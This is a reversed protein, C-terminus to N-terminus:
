VKKSPLKAFLKRKALPIAFLFPAIIIAWALNIRIRNRVAIDGALAAAQDYEEGDVVPNVLSGGSAKTTKYTRSGWVSRTTTDSDSTQVVKKVKRVTVTSSSDQVEEALEEQADEDQSEGVANGDNPTNAEEKTHGPAIFNGLWKGGLVNVVTMYVRGGIFNNNVFNVVSAMINADGTEISSDGKMANQITNGGTNANLTLNNTISANNAQNVTNTSTQSSSATNTSDSGNDSNYATISGDPNVVFQTGASGAYNVGSQGGVIRGVWNGAENILVIWWDGGVVNNNAINFIQGTFSANGTEINQGGAMNASASNDGTTASANINTELNLNNTQTYQNAVTSDANAFNASGSNNGTNAVAGTAATGGTPTTALIIDGILDGFVNVVGYYVEGSFNNNVLNAVNASVNADGTRISNDGNMSNEALNGGTDSTLIINNEIVADNNQFTSNTTNSSYSASNVSGSNNNTNGVYVPTGAVCGSGAACPNSFDLIIDGVHDDVVNFEVVNVGSINTNAQNVVTLATNADGTKIVVDGNMNNAVTNGGTTAGINADNVITANNKQNTTTTSNQNVSGVNVSGSNNGENVISTGGQGTPTSAVSSNVDTLLAGTATADGTEVTTNGNNGSVNQSGTNETVPGSGASTNTSDPTQTNQEPQGGAPTEPASPTEPQQPNNPQTPQQPQSPQSPQAPNSPQSPQTPQSPSTQAIVLGGVSFPVSYGLLLSVIAIITILKKIKM